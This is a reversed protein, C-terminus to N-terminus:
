RRTSIRRPCTIGRALRARGADPEVKAPRQNRTRSHVNLSQSMRPFLPGPTHGRPWPPRFRGPDRHNPATKWRNGCTNRLGSLNAPQPVAEEGQHHTGAPPRDLGRLTFWYSLEPGSDPGVSVASVGSTVCRIKARRDLIDAPLQRTRQAQNRKALVTRCGARRRPHGCKGPLSPARVRTIPPPGLPHTRLPARAPPGAPSVPRCRM